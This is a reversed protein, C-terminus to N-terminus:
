ERQVSTGGLWFSMYPIFDYVWCAARRDADQPVDGCQRWLEVRPCPSACSAAPPPPDRGGGTRWALGLSIEYLIHVAKHM